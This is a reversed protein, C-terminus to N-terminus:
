KRSRLAARIAERTDSGDPAEETERQLPPAAQQKPKVRAATVRRIEEDTVKRGGKGGVRVWKISGDDLSEKLSSLSVGLLHAAEPLPYARRTKTASVVSELRTVSAEIRSLWVELAKIVENIDSM